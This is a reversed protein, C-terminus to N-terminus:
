GSHSNFKIIKEKISFKERFKKDLSIELDCSGKERLKKLFKEISKNFNLKIDL